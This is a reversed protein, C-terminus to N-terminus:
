FIHTHTTWKSQGVGKDGNCIRNKGVPPVHCHNMTASRHSKKVESRHNVCPTQRFIIGERFSVARVQFNTTPLHIKNQTPRNGPAINNYLKLSHIGNKWSIPHHAFLIMWGYTYRLFFCTIIYYFSLWCISNGRKNKLIVDWCVFWCIWCNKPAEWTRTPDKGVNVKVDASDGANSSVGSNSKVWRQTKALRHQRNNNHMAPPKSPGIIRLTYVTYRQEVQHNWVHQLCTANIDM